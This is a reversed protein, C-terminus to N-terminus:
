QGLVEAKIRKLTKMVNNAGRGFYDYLTRYETYLRNYIAEHASIPRVVEDKLKGMKEAVAQIDPYVGAAVAAHMAAGLAPAQASGAFYLPKGTVDAYIQVLMKNKEPLGGALVLENVPIGRQEFSEIIIRTGYATAEILARYIDPATTAL